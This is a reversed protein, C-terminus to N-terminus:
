WKKEVQLNVDHYYAEGMGFFSAESGNTGILTNGLLPAPYKHDLGRIYSINLKIKTGYRGGLLTRRKFNYAFVGQFAWEGPAAQTAYPYLAPLAYTHLYSFAPMNNIFM